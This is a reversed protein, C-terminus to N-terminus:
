PKDRMHNSLKDLAKSRDDDSKADHIEKSIEKGEKRWARFAFENWRKIIESLATLLAALTSV